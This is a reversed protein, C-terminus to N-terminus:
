KKLYESIIGTVEGPTPFRKTEKKSFILQGNVFVDFTGVEGIILSAEVGFEKFLEDALSTARTRYGCQECLHIEITLVEKGSSPKEGGSFGVCAAVSFVVVLSVVVIIKKM